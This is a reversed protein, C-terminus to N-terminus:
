SQKKGMTPLSVTFVSGKGPASEVAIQGHHLDVIGRALTLGLGTGPIGETRENNARYFEEFVRASEEPSMGIGNDRVLISLSAGNRRAEVQVRGGSPTYKVANDILNTLVSFLGNRDALLKEAGASQDCNLTLEINKGKAKDSCADVAEQLLGVPDLPIRRINLKGTQMATINMLDSILDRLNRARALSREIMEREKEPNDKVMGRCILDLFSEIAALPRKVEHAVMTIFMSKAAELKKLQSIDRLVVVAGLPEGGHEAVPSANVMYNRGALEIDKSVILPTAGSAMAEALLGGLVEPLCSLPAPVPLSAFDPLIKAAADNRLVVERERNVVFVADTMCNLITACQSREYALELLRNEREKRLQAAELALARRELGNRVPLLMEDPTFPKPIYGYAGRKTAEVATDITAYATIVLLVMDPAEAHVNEVFELGGMRPMKMDVLACAYGGRRRFLELGAMGDEATDVEYGEAELTRRCGERMGLEDDVVLIRTKEANM